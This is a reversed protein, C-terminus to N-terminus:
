QLVPPSFRDLEGDALRGCLEKLRFGIWEFDRPELYIQGSLRVWMAGSHYAIQLYTDFEKIATANLWKQIRPAEDVGFTSEEPRHEEGDVRFALPLKVNAFCCQRLTGTRNDMVETGLIEAVRDGGFRATEWCYKM